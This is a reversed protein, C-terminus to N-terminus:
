RSLIRRCARLKNSGNFTRKKASQGAPPSQRIAQLQAQELTLAAVLSFQLREIQEAKEQVYVGLQDSYEQQVQQDRLQEAQNV